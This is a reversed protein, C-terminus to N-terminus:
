QSQVPYVPFPTNPPLSYMPPNAVPSLPGYLGPSSPGVNSPNPTASAERRGADGDITKSRAIYFLMGACIALFAIGGFVIGAIAGGSLRSPYHDSTTSFVPSSSAPPVVLTSSAEKPIAEGPAVQFDAKRAARIQGDLTQTSNPNIAGVM